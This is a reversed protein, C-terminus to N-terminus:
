LRLESKQELFEPSYYFKVMEIIQQKSTRGHWHACQHSIGKLLNECDEPFFTMDIKWTFINHLELEKNEWIKFEYYANNEGNYNPWFVHAHINRHNVDWWIPICTRFLMESNEMHNSCWADWYNWLASPLNEIQWLFKEGNEWMIDKLIWLELAYRFFTAFFSPEHSHHVLTMSGISKRPSFWVQNWFPSIVKIPNSEDYQYFKPDWDICASIINRIWKSNVWEYQDKKLQLVNRSRYASLSMIMELVSSFWYEKWKSLEKKNFEKTEGYYEDDESHPLMYWTALAIDDLYSKQTKFTDRPWFLDRESAFTTQIRWLLDDKWVLSLVHNKVINTMDYPGYLIDHLLDEINYNWHYPRNNFAPYRELLWSSQIKEELSPFIVYNQFM